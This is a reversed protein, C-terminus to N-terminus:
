PLTQINAKPKLIYTRETSRGHGKQIRMNERKRGGAGSGGAEKQREREKEGSWVWISM